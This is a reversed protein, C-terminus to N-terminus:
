TPQLAYALFSTVKSTSFSTMIIEKRSNKFLNISLINDLIALQNHLRHKRNMSYQAVESQSLPLFSTYFSSFVNYFLQKATVKRPVTIMSLINEM